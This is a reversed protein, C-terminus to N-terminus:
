KDKFVITFTTGENVKSTFYITGGLQEVMNKVMALGLGSGTSKTTFNPVFIKHKIDDPIGNGNDSVEIIIESTNNSKLSVIIKGHTANDIAQLANKILNNLIRIIYDKDAYLYISQEPLQLIIQSNSSSKFLNVATLIAEKLNVDEFNPTPMKAFNSFETAINSLTDIQEILMESFRKFKKDFDPANDKRARELLQVSLKIPTLPNKIEHAVQKAMEKWAGERESQALQEASNMLEIVMRNYENVLSAIEDSGEWQILENRKGLQIASLKEKLLVLPLTIRNSILLSAFISLAFLVLYINILSILFASIENDLDSQKAFYPLNLYGLIKNQKNRIPVYASQYQLLGIREQHIYETKAQKNLYFYSQPNIKDSLLKQNFLQMKSSAVLNGLIDYITVDTYFVNAFRSLLYNFYESSITTFSKENKIKEEIEFLIARSKNRIEELNQETFQEKYSQITAYGLMIFSFFLILLLQLQIRAQLTIKNFKTIDNFYVGLLLLGLLFMNYILLASFINLVVFNSPEPTSVIIQTNNPLQKVSHIFGEKTLEYYDHGTKTFAASTLPYSYKGYFNILNFNKYKAYSYNKFLNSETENKNLLLEPFGIDDTLYNAQILIFLTGLPVGKKKIPIKSLYVIQGSENKIHYLYNTNVVRKNRSTLANFVSIDSSPLYKTELVPEGYKDYIFFNIEYKDWYGIFYKQFFLNPLNLNEKNKDKKSNVAEIVALDQAINNEILPFLQELVLDTEDSLYDILIKKNETEKRELTNLILYSYFISVGGICIFLFLLTYSYQKINHWWYIFLLVLGIILAGIESSRIQYISYGILIIVYLTLFVIATKKSYNRLLLIFIKFVLYGSIYYLLTGALGIYGYLNIETLNAINFSLTSHILLTQTIFLVFLIYVLSIITGSILIPTRYKNIIPTINQLGSRLIVAIILCTIANLIYDGLSSFLNNYAYITPNFITLEHLFSPLKFAIMVWRALLVLIINLIFAYKKLYNSVISNYNNIFVLLALSISLFSLIFSISALVPHYNTYKIIKLGCCFRNESLFLNKDLPTESLEILTHNNLKFDRQFNNQLYKNQYPYENKILILGIGKFNLMNFRVVAYWGNNIKICNKKYVDPNYNLYIPVRNDTWVIISDNRYVLLAIGKDDFLESYYRINKYYTQEPTFKILSTLHQLTEKEKQQLKKELKDILKDPTSDQLQYYDIVMSAAFFLVAVSLLFFSNAFFKKL